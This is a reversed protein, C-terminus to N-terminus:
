TSEKFEPIDIWHAPIAFRNGVAPWHYKDHGLVLWGDVVWRALYYHPVKATGEQVRLIVVRGDTPNEEDVNTWNTKM